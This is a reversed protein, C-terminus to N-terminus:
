FNSSTKNEYIELSTHGPHLVIGKLPLLVHVLQQLMDAEREDRPLEEHRVDVALGEDSLVGVALLEQELFIWDAGRGGIAQGLVGDCFGMSDDPRQAKREVIDVADLEVDLARHQEPHYAM